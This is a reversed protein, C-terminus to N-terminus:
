AAAKLLRVSIWVTNFDSMTRSIYRFAVFNEYVDIFNLSIVVDFCSFRSITMAKSLCCVFRNQENCNGLQGKVNMGGHMQKDTNLPPMQYDDKEWM